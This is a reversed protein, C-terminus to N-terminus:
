GEGSLDFPPVEIEWGDSRLTLACTNGAVPAFEFEALENWGVRQVPASGCRLEAVGAADPGLIQGSIRWQRDPLPELRLDIDRGEASFLMQRTTATGGSRLGLAVNGTAASDFRLTALWRQLMGSEGGAQAARRQWLGIARQILTEPADDLRRSERLTHELDAADARLPRPADKM